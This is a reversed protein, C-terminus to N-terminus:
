REIEGETNKYTVKIPTFRLPTGESKYIERTADKDFPFLEKFLEGIRERMGTLENFFVEPYRRMGDWCELPAQLYAEPNGRADSGLSEPHYMWMYMDFRRRLDCIEEAERLTYEKEVPEQKLIRHSPTITTFNLITM